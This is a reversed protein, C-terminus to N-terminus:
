PHPESSSWTVASDLPTFPTTLFTQTHSWPPYSTNVNALFYAWPPVRFLVPHWVWHFCRALSKYLHTNLFIYFLFLIHCLRNSIIYPNLRLMELLCWIPKPISLTLHLTHPLLITHIFGLLSHLIFWKVWLLIHVLCIPKTFILVLFWYKSKRLQRVLSEYITNNETPQFVRFTHVPLFWVIQLKGM